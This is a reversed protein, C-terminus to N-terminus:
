HFEVARIKLQKGSSVDRIIACGQSALKLVTMAGLGIIGIEEVWGGCEYGLILAPGTTLNTLAASPPPLDELLCGVVEIILGENGNKTEHAAILM